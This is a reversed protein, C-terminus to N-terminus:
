LPPPVARQARPTSMAATTTAPKPALPKAAASVTAAARAFSAVAPPAKVETVEDGATSAPAVRRAEAKTEVRAAPTAPKGDIKPARPAQAVPRAVVSSSQAKVASPALPAPRGPTGGQAMSVSHM